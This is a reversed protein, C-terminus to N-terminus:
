EKQAKWSKFKKKLYNKIENHYIMNVDSINIQFVLGDMEYHLRCKALNYKPILSSCEALILQTKNDISSQLSPDSTFYMWRMAGEVNPTLKYLEIGEVKLIKANSFDGKLDVVEQYYQSSFFDTHVKYFVMVNLISPFRRGKDQYAKYGIVSEVLDSNEFNLVFLPGDNDLNAGRFFSGLSNSKVLYESPINYETGHILFKKQDAKYFFILTVFVLFVTVTYLVLKIM